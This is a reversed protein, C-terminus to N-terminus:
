GVLESLLARPDKALLLSEGILFADFGGEALLMVDAGSAIGSEAVKIAQFPLLPAMTLSRELEVEFTRLNRNNVGVLEWEAFDESQWEDSAEALALKALDDTDHTEVLPVLGLSRALTAYHALEDAELLAAVLLIVDAGAAKANLLQSEDVVFDKAVAPLGSAEKCATLLEWSGYFFDPEVVVSLCTAGGEAYLRAQAIPDFRDAISGLRPSGMKIEAIIAPLRQQKKTAIQVLFPNERPSRASGIETPSPLSPAAESALRKRRQAVIRQLIDPTTM